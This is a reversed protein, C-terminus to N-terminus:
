HTPSPVIVVPCPARHSVYQSVSGLFLGKVTGMGRAGVVVLDAPNAEDVIAPGAPGLAVKTTIALGRHEGLSAVAEKVVSEAADRLVDEDILVPHVGMGDYDGMVPVSYTHLVVVAAHHTEAEAIAWCLAAAGTRSGDVGVVIRETMTRM